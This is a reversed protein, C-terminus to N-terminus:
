KEKSQEKIRHDLTKNTENLTYELYYDPALLLSEMAIEQAKAADKGAFFSLARVAELRVRPHKDNVEARLLELPEKVRDRWYCLVRTAAARAKPEPCTLMQKLLGLDVIDFSQRLWLAELMHHWYDPDNKYLGAIWKDLASMVEDSPRERLERRTRYRTRDEYVKLLELLEATTAGAIRPKDVLPRKKYVIRWIRGHEVDRKPDRLSHQMHGILPNFWDVLYLAGDPGFELDVPRFNPDSSRL